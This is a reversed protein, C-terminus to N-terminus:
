PEDVGKPVSDPVVVRYSCNPDVVTRVYIHRTAKNVSDVVFKAYLNQLQLTTSSFCSNPDRLEVAVASGVAIHQVSLTDYGDVPVVRLADFSGPVVQMGIRKLTGALAGGVYRVPYIVPLGNADLDFLLDFGFSASARTAGLLFGIANPETPAGNTLSTLTYTGLPSSYTAKPVTSVDCAVVAGVLLVFAVRTLRAPLM